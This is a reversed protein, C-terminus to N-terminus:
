FISCGGRHKGESRGVDGGVWGQDAVRGEGIEEDRMGRNRVSSKPHGSHEQTPAVVRGGVVVMNSSSGGLKGDQQGPPHLVAPSQHQVHSRHAADIGDSTCDPSLSRVAERTLESPPPPAQCPFRASRRHQTFYTPSLNHITTPTGWPSTQLSRALPLDHIVSYRRAHRNKNLTPTVITCCNYGDTGRLLM